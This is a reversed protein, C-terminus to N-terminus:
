ECLHYLPARETISIEATFSIAQKSRPKTSLTRSTCTNEGVTVKRHHKAWWRPLVPADAPHLERVGAERYSLLHEHGVEYIM